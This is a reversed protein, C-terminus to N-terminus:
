FDQLVGQGIPSDELFREWVEGILYISGTVLIPHDSPEDLTCIGKSPFLEAISGRHMPGSFCGPIWRELEDFSASRSQEPM